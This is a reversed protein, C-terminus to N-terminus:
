ETVVARPLQIIVCIFGKQLEDILTMTYIKSVKKALKQRNPVVVNPIMNECFKRFGSREVTALAM